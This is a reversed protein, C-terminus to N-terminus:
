IRALRSSIGQLVLAIGLFLLGSNVLTTQVLNLRSPVTLDAGTVPILVNGGPAPLPLTPVATSTAISVEGPQAITTATFTQTPTMTWTPTISPLPTLTPLPTNTIDSCYLPGTTLDITKQDSGSYWTIRVEQNGRSSKFFSLISHPQIFGTGGQDTGIQQWIFYIMDDNANSATWNIGDELCQYILGLNPFVPYTQCANSSSSISEHRTWEEHTWSVDLSHAGNSSYLHYGDEDGVTDETVDDDLEATFDVDFDNPNDITWTIGGSSNCDQDLDLDYLCFEFDGTNSDDSDVQVGDVYIKVTKYGLSTRFTTESNAEVTGHGHESKGSVKWTFDVDFDNPNTVLWTYHDAGHFGCEFSLGLNPVRTSTSTFTLTPTPTETATGPETATSTLTQTATYTETPPQTRTPTLTDTATHTETPPQTHTPTQTETPPETFTPTLTDTATDQNTPTPTQSDLQTPTESPIDTPTKTYTATPSLSSTVTETPTQTNEATGTGTPTRSPRRTSTPTNTYECAVTVGAAALTATKKKATEGNVAQVPVNILSLLMGSLLCSVGLVYFIRTLQVILRAHM